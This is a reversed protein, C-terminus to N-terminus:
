RVVVIAQQTPSFIVLLSQGRCSSPIENGEKRGAAFFVQRMCDEKESLGCAALHMM